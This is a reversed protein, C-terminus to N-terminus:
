ITGLTSVSAYSSVLSDVTSGLGFGVNEFASNVNLPGSAVQAWTVSQPAPNAANLASRLQQYSYTGDGLVFSEVCNAPQEWNLVLLSSNTTTDMALLHKGEVRLWQSRGGLLQLGGATIRDAADNGQEMVIAGTGSTLLYHDSGTGGVQIDFDSLPGSSTIRDDGAFGYTVTLPKGTLTDIGTTGAQEDFPGKWGDKNLDVRLRAEDQLLGLNSLM